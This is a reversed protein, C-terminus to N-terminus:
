EDAPTGYVTLLAAPSFEAASFAYQNVGPEFLPWGRSTVWANRSAQGNALVTRAEADIDLWEGALLEQSSSFVLARGTGVHTLVPGKVAGDIRASVLGVENGDNVLTIVGAVLTTDIKFPITFPITLGGSTEPLTTSRTQMDGFKRWDDSAVQISWRAYTPSKRDFFVEDARKAMVWRVKGAESVRMRREDRSVAAILRRKADVLLAPTPAKVWGGVSVSRARGFSDGSWGGSARTRQVVELTPETSGWGDFEDAYVGWKVGFDDIGNLILGDYEIWDGTWPTM